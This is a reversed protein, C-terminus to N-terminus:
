VVGDEGENVGLTLFVERKSKDKDITVISYIKDEIYIVNKSNIVDNYPIAVKLEIKRNLAFAVEKDQERVSMVRFPYTDVERFKRDVEKGSVRIKEYDGFKLEGDNYTKHKLNHIKWGRVWERRKNINLIAM